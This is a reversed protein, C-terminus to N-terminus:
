SQGPPTHVVGTLFDAVGSGGGGMRLMNIERLITRCAQDQGPSLPWLLAKLQGASGLDTM